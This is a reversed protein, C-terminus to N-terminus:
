GASLLKKFEKTLAPVVEFLDGVAGYDARQFIPAEPDTNIAVICKSTKMGALHQIAGSIGCAIYLTPNVTKGTQGVQMAHPALGSDVAARSAGVAAGIVDALEALIKFNEAAKMARGGSVIREAEGLDPRASDASGTVEITKAKIEGSVTAQAVEASAGSPADVKLVNPRVTLVAPLAKFKLNAFYKGALMPRKVKVESGSVTLAVCDPAFGGGLRVAMAPLLDKALNSASAALIGYGGTKFTEAITGAFLDAQYRVLDANDAVFFKKAGQGGVDKAIEAANKAADPGFGITDVSCGQSALAHVVELCAKKAKGNKFEILVLAKTSM